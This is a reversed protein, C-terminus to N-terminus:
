TKTEKRYIGVLEDDLVPRYNRVAVGVNIDLFGDDYKKVAWAKHVHGVIAFKCKKRVYAMLEPDQLPDGSHRHTAFAPIGGVQAFMHDGAWKVKNTRDHNGKLLVLNAEVLAAHEYWPIKEGPVGKASGYCMFDGVHVLIDERGLRMNAEAILRERMHEADRFPREDYQIVNGHNLHWDASWGRISM